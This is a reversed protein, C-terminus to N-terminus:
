RGFYPQGAADYNALMGACMSQYFAIAAHSNREVAYPCFCYKFLCSGHRASALAIEGVTFQHSNKQFIFRQGRCSLPARRSREPFTQHASDFWTVTLLPSDDHTFCSWSKYRNSFCCFKKSCGFHPHKHHNLLMLKFPFHLIIEPIHVTSRQLQTVLWLSRIDHLGSATAAAAATTTSM